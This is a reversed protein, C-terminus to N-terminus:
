LVWLGDGPTITGGSLRPDAGTVVPSLDVKGERLEGYAEPVSQRGDLDMVHDALYRWETLGIRHTALQLDRKSFTHPPRRARANIMLLLPETKTLDRLNIYPMLLAERQSGQYKKRQRPRGQLLGRTEKYLERTYSNNIVDIDPRHDCAMNPWTTLLLEKRKMTSRKTWRKHITPEHRQVIFELTGWNDYIRKATKRIESRVEPLEELSIGEFITDALPKSQRFTNQQKDQDTSQDM